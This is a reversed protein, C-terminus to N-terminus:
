RTMWTSRDSADVLRTWYTAQDGHGRRVYQHTYPVSWYESMLFSEFDHSQHWRMPPLAELMEMFKEETVEVPPGALYFARQGAKYEDYTMPAYTFRQSSDRNAREKDAIAEEVTHYFNWVSPPDLSALVINGYTM